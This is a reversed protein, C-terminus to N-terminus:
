EAGAPIRASSHLKGSTLMRARLGGRGKLCEEAGPAIAQDM